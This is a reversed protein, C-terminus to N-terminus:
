YNENIDVGEEKVPSSQYCKAVFLPTVELLHGNEVIHQGDILGNFWFNTFSNENYFKEIDDKTFLSWENKQQMYRVIWNAVIEKECSGFSDWFHQKTNIDNPSINMKM